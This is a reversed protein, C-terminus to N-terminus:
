DIETQPRVTTIARDCMDRIRLRPAVSDRQAVQTEVREWDADELVALCLRVAEDFTIDTDDTAQLVRDLILSELSIVELTEEEDLPMRVVEGDVRHSPFELWWRQGDPFTYAFHDGQLHAFGLEKLTERDVDDLFACMDVDTPRYSGTYLNM